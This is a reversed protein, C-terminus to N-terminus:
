ADPNEQEFEIWFSFEAPGWPGSPTNDDIHEVTVPMQGKLHLDDREWYPYLCVPLGETPNCEEAFSEPHPDLCILQANGGEIELAWKHDALGCPKKWGGAPEKRRPVEEDLAEFDIEIGM